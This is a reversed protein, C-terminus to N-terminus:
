NKKQNKLKQSSKNLMSSPNTTFHNKKFQLVKGKKKNKTSSYLLVIYTKYRTKQLTYCM